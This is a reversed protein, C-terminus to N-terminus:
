SVVLARPEGPVASTDALDVRKRSSDLVQIESFSPEPDETFWVKITGPTQLQGGSRPDSKEYLAHGLAPGGTVFLLGFALLLAPMARRAAVHFGLGFSRTLRM